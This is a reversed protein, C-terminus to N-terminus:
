ERRPNNPSVERSVAASKGDHTGISFSQAPAPANAVEPRVGRLAVQRDRAVQVYPNEDSMTTLEQKIPFIFAAPRRRFSFALRGGTRQSFVLAYARASNECRGQMCSKVALFLNPAGPHTVDTAGFCAVSKSRRAQLDGV